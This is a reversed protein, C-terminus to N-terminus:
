ACATTELALRVTLKLTEAVGASSLRPWRWLVRAGALRRLARWGGGSVCRRLRRTAQVRSKCAPECGSRGALMVVGRVWRCGICGICAVQLLSVRTGAIEDVVRRFHGLAELGVLTNVREERCSESASPM